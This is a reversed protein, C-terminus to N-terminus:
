EFSSTFEALQRQLFCLTVFNLRGQRFLSQLNLILYHISFKHIIAVTDSWKHFSLLYFFDSFENKFNCLWMFSWNCSLINFYCELFSQIVQSNGSNHEAHLHFVPIRKFSTYIPDSYARCCTRSNTKCYKFFMNNFM